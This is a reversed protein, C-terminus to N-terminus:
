LGLVFVSYYVVQYKTLIEMSISKLKLKTLIEMSISKVPTSSSLLLNLPKQINSLGGLFSRPANSGAEVERKQSRDQHTHCCIVNSNPNRQDTSVQLTKRKVRKAM